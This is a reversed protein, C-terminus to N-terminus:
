RSPDLSEVAAPTLERLSPLILMAKGLAEEGPPFARNPVAIVRMGAAAASLLGNHSDEIAVSTAPDAGLSRATELALLPFRGRGAILGYRM